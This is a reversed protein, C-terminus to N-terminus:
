HAPISTDATFFFSPLLLQWHSRTSWVPFQILRLSNPWANSWTMELNTWKWIQFFPQCLRCLRMTLFRQGSRKKWWACGITCGLISMTPLLCKKHLKTQFESLLVWIEFCYLFRATVRDLLDQPLERGGLRKIAIGGGPAVLKISLANEELRRRLLRFNRAVSPNNSSTPQIKKNWVNLPNNLDFASWWHATLEMSKGPKDSASYSASLGCFGQSTVGFCPNNVQVQIIHKNPKVWDM